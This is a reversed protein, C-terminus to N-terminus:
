LAFTTYEGKVGGEKGKDDDHKKRRGKLTEKCPQNVVYFSYFFLFKCFKSM